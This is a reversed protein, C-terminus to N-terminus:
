RGLSVLLADIASFDNGSLAIDGGAAFFAAGREALTAGAWAAAGMGLDDSFIPGAFGISQRLLRLWFPSFATPAADCAPFAVFSAMVGATPFPPASGAEAQGVLRRYPLLDADWLTPLPREDIPLEVHSDAIAGGHGPYHKFVPLVGADILGGAFAGALVTVGEPDTGFARDGIVQSRGDNLDVVPAFNVTIGCAALERGATQGLARVTALAQQPDRQWLAGLERMPPLLTFGEGRFRQVRGGEHDVAIAVSPKEARIAATLRQLQARDRWNRAFLLVGTVAPHRLRRQDALTLEVGEIGIWWGRAITPSDAM